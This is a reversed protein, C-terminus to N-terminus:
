KIQLTVDDFRVESTKTSSKIEMYFQVFAKGAPVTYSASTSTWQLSTINSGVVWTPNAKNADTVAIVLHAMGDGSIRSGWGSFTLVQGPRVPYYSNAGNADAAMLIPQTGPGAAILDGYHTGTRAVGPLNGISCTGYCHWNLPSLEFGPNTLSQYFAEMPPIGFLGGPFTTAGFGKLVTKLTSEHMYSTSSQFATKVNPGILVTLVQGGGATCNSKCYPTYEPLPPCSTDPLCDSNLSEDV